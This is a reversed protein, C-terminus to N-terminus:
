GPRKSRVLIPRLLLGAVLLAGLDVVAVMPIPDQWKDMDALARPRKIEV